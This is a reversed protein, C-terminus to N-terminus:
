SVRRVAVNSNGLRNGESKFDDYTARALEKGNVYLITDGGRSSGQPLAEQLAEVMTQKMINQPATIEPNSRAGAYEGFEAVTPGYAVNGKAFKLGGINVGFNIGLEAFLGNKNGFLGYKFIRKIEGPINSFRRIIDKKIEEFYYSFLDFTKDLINKYQGPAMGDKIAKPIDKKFTQQEQLSLRENMRSISDGADEASIKGDEYAKVINDRIQKYSKGTKDNAIAIDFNAKVVKSSADIEEEKAKKVEEQAKITEKYAKYVEKQTETLNEYALSGDKVKNYIDEGNLGTEQQVQSLTKLANQQRDIASEYGDTADNLRDQAEKLLEMQTKADKMKGIRANEEDVQRKITGILLTISAVLLAIAGGLAGMSGSTNKVENGADKAGKGVDFLNKILTAFKLAEVIGKFILITTIIEKWYKLIEKLPEIWDKVVKAIDQIKKVTKPDLEINQMEELADAVGFDVDDNDGLGKDFNLNTIEDFNALEKNLGKVAKSTANAKNKVKDLATKIFDKGTLAKYFVNIYAVLKQLWGVIKEVIPAFMAGLAIWNAQIRANAETDYAMYSRVARSLATWISHIGFLSLGFRKLNKIGRDVSNSIRDGLDSFANKLGNASDETEELEDEFSEVDKTAEKVGTDEFLNSFDESPGPTDHSFNHWYENDEPTDRGYLEKFAEDSRDADPNYFSNDFIKPKVNAMRKEFDKATEKLQNELTKTDAKIKIKQEEGNIKIKRLPEEISKKAEETMSKAKDLKKQLDSIDVSLKVGYEKNDM